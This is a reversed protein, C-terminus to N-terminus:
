NVGDTYICGSGVKNLRHEIISGVEYEDEPVESDDDLETMDDGGLYVIDEISAKAVAGAAALGRGSGRNSKQPMLFTALNRLHSIGVEVLGRNM